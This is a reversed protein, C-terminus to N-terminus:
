PKKQAQHNREQEKSNQNRTGQTGEEVLQSKLRRGSSNFQAKEEETIKGEGPDRGDQSCTGEVTIETKFTSRNIERKKKLLYNRPTILLVLKKQIEKKKRKPSFALMRVRAIKWVLLKMVTSEPMTKAEM